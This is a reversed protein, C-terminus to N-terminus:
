YIYLYSQSVCLESLVYTATVCKSSVELNLNYIKTYYNLVQQHNQM